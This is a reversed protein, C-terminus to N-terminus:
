DGTCYKEKPIAVNGNMVVDDTDHRLAGGQDFVTHEDSSATTKGM